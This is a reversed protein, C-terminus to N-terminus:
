GTEPCKVAFSTAAASRLLFTSRVSAMTWFNMSPSPLLAGSSRKVEFAPATPLAVNFASTNGPKCISHLM